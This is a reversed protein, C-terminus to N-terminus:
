AAASHSRLSVAASEVHGRQGGAVQQHRVSRRTRARQTVCLLSRVTEACVARVCQMVCSVRMAYGKPQCCRHHHHADATADRPRSQRGLDVAAGDGSVCKFMIMARCVEHIAACDAAKIAGFEDICCVGSHLLLMRHQAYARARCVSCVCGDALVLAGAELM